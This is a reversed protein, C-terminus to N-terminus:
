PAPAAPEPHEPGGPKPTELTTDDDDIVDPGKVTEGRDEDDDVTPIQDSPGDEGLGVRPGLAKDSGPLEPPAGEPDEFLEIGSDSRGIESTDDFSGDEIPLADAPALDSPKGANRSALYYGGAALVLVLLAVAPWTWKTM